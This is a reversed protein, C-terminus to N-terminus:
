RAKLDAVDLQLVRRQEPRARHHGDRVIQFVVDEVELLRRCRQDHARLGIARTGLEIVENRRHGEIRAIDGGFHQPAPLHQAQEEHALV